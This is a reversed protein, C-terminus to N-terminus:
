KGYNLSASTTFNKAIDSQSNRVAKRVLFCQIHKITDFFKVNFGAVQEFERNKWGKTWDIWDLNSGIVKKRTYKLETM